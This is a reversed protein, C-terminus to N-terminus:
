CGAEAFIARQFSEDRMAVIITSLTSSVVTGGDGARAVAHWFDGPEKADNYLHM